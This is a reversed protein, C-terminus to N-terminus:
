SEKALNFGNRKLTERPFTIKLVRVEKTAIYYVTDENNEEKMIRHSPICEQLNQAASTTEYVRDIHLAPLSEPEVFKYVRSESSDNTTTKNNNHSTHSTTTTTKLNAAVDQLELDMNTKKRIQFKRKRDYGAPRFVQLVEDSPEEIIQLVHLNTSQVLGTEGTIINTCHCAACPLAEETAPRTLQLLDGEIITLTSDATIATTSKNGVGAKALAWTSRQTLGNRFHEILQQLETADYSFFKLLTGDVFLLTLIKNNSSSNRRTSGVINNTSSLTTKPQNPLQLQDNAQDVTETEKSSASLISTIKFYEAQFLAEGTAGSFVIVGDSNVGFLLRQHGRFHLGEIRKIDFTRTFNRCWKKKAVLVMEAKVYEQSPKEEIDFLTNHYKVVVKVWNKVNNQQGQLWSPPIYSRIVSNLGSETIGGGYDIYYQRAALAAVEYGAECVYEGLMIGRCIQAYCLHAAVPDETVDDEWPTFIEKRVFLKWCPNYNNGDKLSYNFNDFTNNNNSLGNSQGIYNSSNSNHFTNTTSKDPCNNNNVNNNNNHINNGNVTGNRSSITKRNLKQAINTAFNIWGAYKNNGPTFSTTSSREREIQECRSVSDFIKDSSWGLSIIKEKMAIYVSFGFKQQLNMKTAVVDVVEDATTSADVEENLVTGDMLTIQIELSSKEEVSKYELFSPPQFRQGKLITRMVVRKLTPVMTAPGDDIFRALYLLMQPSPLVVGIMLLLLNYAKMQPNMIAFGVIYQVQDFAESIPCNNTVDGSVNSDNSLSDNDTSGDKNTSTVTNNNNNDNNNNDNNNNNNNTNNENDHLDSNIGFFINKLPTRSFNKLTGLKFSKKFKTSNINGNNNDNNTINNNNNNNTNNNANNNNKKSKSVTKNAKGRLSGSMSISELNDEDIDEDAESLINRRLKMTGTMEEDSNNWINKATEHLKKGFQLSQNIDIITRENTQEQENMNSRTQALPTM